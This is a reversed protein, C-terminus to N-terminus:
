AEGDRVDGGVDDFFNLMVDYTVDVLRGRLFGAGYARPLSNAGNAGAVTPPPPLSPSFRWRHRRFLTLLGSPPGAPTPARFRGGRRTAHRGGHRHTRRKALPAAWRRKRSERGNEPGNQGFFSYPWVANNQRKAQVKPRPSRIQVSQRRTILAKPYPIAFLSLSTSVSIQRPM